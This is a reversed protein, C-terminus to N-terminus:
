IFNPEEQFLGKKMLQMFCQMHLTLEEPDKDGRWIRIPYDDSGMMDDPMIAMPKGCLGCKFEPDDVDRSFKSWPLDTNVDKVDEVQM